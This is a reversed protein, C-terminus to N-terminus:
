ASSQCSDPRLAADELSQAICSVITRARSPKPLILLNESRKALSVTESLVIVILEPDANRLMRVIKEPQEGASLNVVVLDIRTDRLEAAASGADAAERVQYGKRKLLRKLLNRLAPDDDLVLIRHPVAADTLPRPVSVARKAIFWPRYFRLRCKRCRLPAIFLLAAAADCFSVRDSLRISSWGCNPCCLGKARPQSARM